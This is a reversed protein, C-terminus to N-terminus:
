PETPIGLGLPRPLFDFTRAIFCLQLSGKLIESYNCLSWGYEGRICRGNGLDHIWVFEFFGYQNIALYWGAVGNTDDHILTNGFTRVDGVPCAILSQYGYAANRQLYSRALQYNSMPPNDNKWSSDGWAANDEPQYIARFPQPLNGKSDVMLALVYALPFASIALIIGVCWEIAFLSLTFPLFLYRM